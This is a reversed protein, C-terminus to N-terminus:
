RGCGAAVRRRGAAVGRVGEDGEQGPRWSGGPGWGGPHGGSGTSCAPVAPRILHRGTEHRGLFEMRISDAGERPQSPGGGRVQDQGGRVGAGASWSGELDTSDPPRAHEGKDSPWSNMRESERRGKGGRPAAGSSRPRPRNGHQRGQQVTWSFARRTTELRGAWPTAQRHPRLHQHFSPETGGPGM